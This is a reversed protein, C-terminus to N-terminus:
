PLTPPNVDKKVPSMGTKLYRRFWRMYPQWEAKEEDTLEHKVNPDEGEKLPRPEGYKAIFADMAEDPKPDAYSFDIGELMTADEKTVMVMRNKDKYRFERLAM